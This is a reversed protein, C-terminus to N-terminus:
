HMPATPYEREECGVLRERVCVPMGPGFPYLCYVCDCVYKKIQAM